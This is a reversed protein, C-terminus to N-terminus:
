LGAMATEERGKLGLFERTDDPSAIERGAVEWALNVVKEVVQANSEALEGRGLHPNDEMGVRAHGGM